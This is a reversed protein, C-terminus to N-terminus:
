PASVKIHTEGDHPSALLEGSSAAATERWWWRLTIGHAADAADPVMRLPLTLTGETSPVPGSVIVAKGGHPVHAVYVVGGAPLNTIRVHVPEGAKCASGTGCTAELRASAAGREVFGGNRRGPIFLILAAAAAAVPMWVWSSSLLRKWAPEKVVAQSSIREWLRDTEPGALKGGAMIRDLENDTRPRQEASM